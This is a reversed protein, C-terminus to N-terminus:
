AQFIVPAGLKQHLENCKGPPLRLGHALDALYQAEKQEDLDIAIVSLSYVQEEMGIPVSWAFERVDSQSSFEKRLFDIETQSVHDLRSLIEKQEDETVQGDSKAANVMARILVVAQENLEEQQPAPPPPAQRQPAPTQRRQQHHDNSVNLLDELSRAAEGITRPRGTSKPQPARRPQPSPKAGGGLIDKLISGGPSSGGSKRGLLAGLVDMADMVESVNIRSIASPFLLSAEFAM